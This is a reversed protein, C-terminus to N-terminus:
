ETADSRLADPEEEAAPLSAKMDKYAEDLSSEGKGIPPEIIHWRVTENQYVFERISREMAELSRLADRAESLLQIHEVTAYSEPVWAGEEYGAVARHIRDALNLKSM